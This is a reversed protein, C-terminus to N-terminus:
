LFVTYLESINVDSGTGTWEWGPKTAYVPAPLVTTIQMVCDAWSVSTRSHFKNDQGKGIEKLLHTQPPFVRIQIGSTYGRQFCPEAMIEGLEEKLGTQWPFAPATAKATM